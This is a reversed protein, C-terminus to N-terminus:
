HLEWWPPLHISLACHQAGPEDVFMSFVADSELPIMQGGMFVRKNPFDIVVWAEASALMQLGVDRAITEMPLMSVFECVAQTQYRPWVSAAEDWNSPDDSVLAIMTLATDDDVDRVLQCRSAEIILVAVSLKSEDNQNM